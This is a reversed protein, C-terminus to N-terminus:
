EEIHFEKFKFKCYATFLQEPFIVVGLFAIVSCLIAISLFLVYIIVGGILQSLLIFAFFMGISIYARKSLKLGLNSRKIQLASNKRFDGNRLKKRFRFCCIIFVSFWLIFLFVYAIDIIQTTLNIEDQFFYFISFYFCRILLLILWQFCIIYLLYQLNQFRIAQKIPNLIIFCIGSIIILSVDIRFMSLDGPLDNMFDGQVWSFFLLFIFLLKINHRIQMPRYRLGMTFEIAYIQELNKKM